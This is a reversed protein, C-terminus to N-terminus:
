REEMAGTEEGPLGSQLWAGLPQLVEVGAASACRVMDATGRGGPLALVLDPRGEDLMRQNRIPGAKRGLGAWDAHFALVPVGRAEAWEAGFTDGGRAAGHILLAVGREAHVRDIAAFAADRDTFDRGGCVLLRIAM